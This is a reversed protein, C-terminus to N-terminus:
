GRLTTPDRSLPTLFGSGGSKRLVKSPRGFPARPPSEFKAGNTSTWAKRGPLPHLHFKGSCSTHPGTTSCCVSSQSTHHPARSPHALAGPAGARVARWTCSVCYGGVQEGSSGSRPGGQRWATGSSQAAGGAGCAGGGGREARCEREVHSSLAAAPAARRGQEQPALDSLSPPGPAKLLFCHPVPPPTVLSDSTQGKTPPWAPLQAPGDWPDPRGTDWPGPRGTDKATVAWIPWAPDESLM